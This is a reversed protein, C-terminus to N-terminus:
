KRKKRFVSMVDMVAYGLVPGARYTKTFFIDLAIDLALYREFWHMQIRGNTFLKLRVSTYDMRAGNIYKKVKSKDIINM